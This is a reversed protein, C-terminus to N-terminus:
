RRHLHLLGVALDISSQLSPSLGKLSPVRLEVLFSATSTVVACVVLQLPSCCFGARVVADARSPSFSSHPVVLFESPPEGRRPLPQSPHLRRRPSASTSPTCPPAGAVDQRRCRERATGAGTGRPPLPRWPPEM